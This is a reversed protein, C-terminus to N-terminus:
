KFKWQDNELVIQTTDLINNNKDILSVEEIGNNMQVKYMIGLDVDAKPHILSYGLSDSDAKWKGNTTRTSRLKCQVWKTGDFKYTDLYLSIAGVNSEERGWSTALFYYSSKSQFVNFDFYAHRRSEDGWFIEQLTFTGDKKLIQAYTKKITSLHDMDTVARPGFTVIRQNTDGISLNDIYTLTFRKEDGMIDQSSLNLSNKDSLIQSICEYAPKDNQKNPTLAAIDDAKKMESRLQQIKVSLSDDAPTKIEEQALAPTQVQGNSTMACGSIGLVFLLIIGLLIKKHHM